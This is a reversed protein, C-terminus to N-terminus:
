TSRHGLRFALRRVPPADTDAQLRALIAGAQFAELEYKLAASSVEM